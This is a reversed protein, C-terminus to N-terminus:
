QSLAGMRWVEAPTFRNSRYVCPMICENQLCEMVERVQLQVFYTTHSVTVFYKCLPIPLPQSKDENHFCVCVHGESAIRHSEIKTGMERMQLIKGARAWRDLWVWTAALGWAAQWGARGSFNLPVVFWSYCLVLLVRWEGIICSCHAPWLACLNVLHLDQLLVAPHASFKVIAQGVVEILNLIDDNSWDQIKFKVIAKNRYREETSCEGHDTNPWNVTVEMLFNFSERCRGGQHHIPM